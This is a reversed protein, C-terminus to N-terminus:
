FNLHYFLVNVRPLENACGEVGSDSGDKSDKSEPTFDRSNAEAEQSERTLLFDNTENNDIIPEDKGSTVHIVTINCDSNITGNPDDEQDEAEVNPDDPCPSVLDEPVGSDHRAVQQLNNTSKSGIENEADERALMRTIVDSNGSIIAEPMSENM